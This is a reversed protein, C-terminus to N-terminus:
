VFVMSADIERQLQDVLAAIDDASAIAAAELRPAILTLLEGLPFQDGQGEVVAEAWIREFSLGAELFTQPLHFGMSRDVGEADLMRDLWAVAQDHAPYAGVRGPCLTSDAEEFVVLGRDRLWPRLGGLVQAPQQLYMFVRRGAIADFSSQEIDALYGPGDNLDACTFRVTEIGSLRERAATLSKESRDVALVGGQPGVLRALVETVEGPGCGLELVRMGECLGATKFLRETTANSRTM